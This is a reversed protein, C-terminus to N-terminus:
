RRRKDPAWLMPALAIARMSAIITGRGGACM